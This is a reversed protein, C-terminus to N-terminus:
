KSVPKLLLQDSLNHCMMHERYRGQLSGFMKRVFTGPRLQKQKKLISHKVIGFWREVHCNTDRTKCTDFNDDEKDSAYRKLNGLLLGSWLPFIGLYNDFLVDVIGPCYYPNEEEVASEADKKELEGKVEELVKKFEYTFPSRGVITQANRRDHDDEEQALPGDQVKEIGEMDPIQCTKILDQMDKLNSLVTETNHKGTVVTCLSRFIKLATQISTTNQLRAFAFTAFDKLGKDATKRGISQTVAKIVHASCIHLVTFMKIEKWTKLKSCVAFARDLYSVISERNFSLLVSQLLAWSYDTEVQNVRLKTYQSLKRLFQMLWFTIPPISHENTLM